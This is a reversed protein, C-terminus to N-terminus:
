QRRRRRPTVSQSESPQSTSAQPASPPPAQDTVNGAQAESDRPPQQANENSFLTFTAFRGDLSLVLRRGDIQTVKWGGIDDGIQVRDAKTASSRILARAGEDDLVIGVLTLNPPQPIVAVPAQEPPPPPPPPTPRRTPSFLPRDRTASLRDLAQAELPNALTPLESQQACLQSAGGVICWVALVIIGIGSRRDIM